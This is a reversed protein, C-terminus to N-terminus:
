SILSLPQRETQIKKGKTVKRLNGSGHGADIVVCIQESEAVAKSGADEVNRGGIFVAASRAVQIMSLALLLGLTLSFAKEKWEQM